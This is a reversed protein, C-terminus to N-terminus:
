ATAAPMAFAFQTYHVRMLGGIRESLLAVALVAPMLFHLEQGAWVHFRPPNSLPHAFWEILHEFFFARWFLLGLVTLM